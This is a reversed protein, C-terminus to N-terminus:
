FGVERPRSAKELMAEMEAEDNPDWEDLPLMRDRLSMGRLNEDESYYKCIEVFM